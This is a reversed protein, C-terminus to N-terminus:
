DNPAAAPPIVLVSCRGDRIVETTVSGLLWREIREHRLSGMAILEAKTEEAVALLEAAPGGRRVSCTVHVRCPANLEAVLEEFAAAVGLRRIVGDGATDEHGGEVGTRDVYVLKLAVPDDRTGEAMVDLAARAARISAPGFDVGVVVRRPLHQLGRAIGLVVGRARRAVTLTAEDHLVRDVVGHHRVGMVILAAGEHEAYRLIEYPAAGLAIHVPWENPKGLWDGFQQRRAHADKAYPADGILERAFTFATPLPTPLPMDSIDLVQIASVRSGYRRELAGAVRVPGAAEEGGTVAVVIPCYGLQSGLSPEPVLRTGETPTLDPMAEPCATLPNTSM